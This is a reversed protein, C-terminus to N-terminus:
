SGKETRLLIGLFEDLKRKLGARNGNNEIVYDALAAKTRQPLQSGIRSSAQRLSLGSRMLRRIRLDRRATIVLIYDFWDAIGWEFILAADVVVPRRPQKMGAARLKGKLARLLPPHIIANLKSLAVPDRFVIQGVRKRDMSGDESLTSEGLARVLKKLLAPDQEVVERGIQDGSLVTAGRTRLHNAASTKGAGPVGTLGLIVSNIVDSAIEVEKGRL